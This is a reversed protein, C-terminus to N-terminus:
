CIGAVSAVSCIWSCAHRRHPACRSKRHEANVEGIVVAESRPRRAPPWRRTLSGARRHRPVEENAVYLPDLGLLECAARVADPVPIASEVLRVGVRAQAAIENLASAVGGRTPDRLVHVDEGASRLVGQVLGHLPAADSQLATEFALGERTSMITIGHLGIPGSLLVLDGPQARRPAIDVGDAIRGVGATNIFMGDGKGREVVKTDGTVIRVGAREAATAMSQVIRWLEEMPLGEELIFGASLYLPQAGCMALDNVTGYVALSGIDGGPFFRPSVVFSDTTFALRAPDAALIAGDHLAALAPNAQGGFTPAFMREVLMQSLRGGGGHALTVVPYESIPIPCQLLM